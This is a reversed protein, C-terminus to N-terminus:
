DKLSEIDQIHRKFTNKLINQLDEDANKLKDLIEEQFVKTHELYEGSNILGKKHLYTLLNGLVMTEAEDAAFILEFGNLKENEM